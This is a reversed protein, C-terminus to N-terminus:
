QAAHAVEQQDQAARSLSMTQRPQSKTSQKKNTNTKARDLATLGDAIMRLADQEADTIKRRM